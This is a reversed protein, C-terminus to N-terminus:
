HHTTSTTNAILAVGIAVGIGVTIATGSYGAPPATEVIPAGGAASGTAAGGASVNETETSAMVDSAPESVGTSSMASAPAVPDPIEGPLPAPVAIAGLQSFTDAPVNAPSILVPLTTPSATLASNGATFVSMGAENTVTISGSLVQDYLGDNALVVLFDTGRIGITANPTALRFSKPNLRGIQGSVFRMGGKFLSFIINSNEAQQPNYIYERVMFSSNAQLSVVQGDEFKLVAHSDDGTRVVVGSTVTNYKLAPRPEENGSAVTVTGTADYIYGRSAWALVPTSVMWVLVVAKAVKILREM